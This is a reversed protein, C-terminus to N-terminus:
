HRRQLDPPPWSQQQALEFVLEAALKRRSNLADSYARQLRKDWEDIQQNPKNIAPDLKISSTADSPIVCYSLRKRYYEGMHMVNVFKLFDNAYTAARERDACEDAYIRDFREFLIRFQATLIIPDRYTRFFQMIRSDIPQTPNHADRVHHNACLPILNSEVSNSPDEDIHHLHDYDDGCIACRHRYEKLVSDRVAKPIAKRSPKKSSPM